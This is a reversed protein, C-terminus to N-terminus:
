ADPTMLGAGKLADLLANFEATTPATEQTSSAINDMVTFAPRAELDAVATELDTLSVTVGAASPDEVTLGLGGVRRQVESLSLDVTISAGPTLLVHGLDHMVVNAETGNTIKTAM